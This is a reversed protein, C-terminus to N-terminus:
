EKKGGDVESEAHRKGERKKWKNYHDGAQEREWGAKEGEWESMRISYKSM